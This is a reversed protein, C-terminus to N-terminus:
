DDGVDTQWRAMAAKLNAIWLANHATEWLVSSATLLYLDTLVDFDKEERCRSIEEAMADPDATMDGLETLNDICAQLTEAVTMDFEEREFTRRLKRLREVSEEPPYGVEYEAILWMWVEAMRSWEDHAKGGVFIKMGKELGFDWDAYMAAMLLGGCQRHLHLWDEYQFPTDGGYRFCATWLGNPHRTVDMRSESALAAGYTKPAVMDYYFTCGEGGELQAHRAVLETLQSLTLPLEDEDEEPLWGRNELLARCLVIMDEERGVACVRSCTKTTPM